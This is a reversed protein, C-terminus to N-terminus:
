LARKLGDELDSPFPSVADFVVTGSRNIIITRPIENVKFATCTNRDQDLYIPYTYSRERHFRTVLDRSEPSVGIVVVGKDKYQQHLKEISPMLQRCPGCWTQWFDILVVKGKFEDCTVINGGDLSELSFSPAPYSSDPGCSALALAAALFLLPRAFSRAM